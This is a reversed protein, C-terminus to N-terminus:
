RRWRRVGASVRVAVSPLDRDCPISLLGNGYTEPQMPRHM